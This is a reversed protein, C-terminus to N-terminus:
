NRYISYNVLKQYTRYYWLITLTMHKRAFNICDAWKMAYIYCNMSCNRLVTLWVNTSAIRKIVGGITIRTNWPIFILFIYAYNKNAVIWVNKTVENSWKPIYLLIIVIIMIIRFFLVMILLLTHCVLSGQLFAM